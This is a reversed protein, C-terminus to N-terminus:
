YPDKGNSLGTRRKRDLYGQLIIIAAQQDILLKRKDRRVNGSIMAAEAIKTTLREDELAIPLGLAKLREVFVDVFKAQFGTTGDMNMPYGVVFGGANYLKVIEDIEELDLTLDRRRIVGVGQATIGLPDSVAVGITKTGVDLSLVRQQEEM